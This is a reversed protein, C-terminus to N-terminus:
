KSFTTAFMPKVVASFSGGLTEGLEVPYRGGARASPNSEGLFSLDLVALLPDPLGAERVDRGPVELLDEGLEVFGALTQLGELDELRQPPEALSAFSNNM